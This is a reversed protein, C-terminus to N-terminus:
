LHSSEPKLAPLPHATIQGLGWLEATRPAWAQGSLLGAAPGGGGRLATSAQLKGAGSAQGVLRGWTQTGQGGEAPLQLGPQCSLIHGEGELWAHAWGGWSGPCGGEGKRHRLPAFHLSPAASPWYSCWGRPGRPLTTRRACTVAPRRRPLPLQWQLVGLHGHFVRAAEGGSSRGGSWVCGGGATWAPQGAAGRPSPAAPSDRCTGRVARFSTTPVPGGQRSQADLLGRGVAGIGHVGWFMQVRCGASAPPWTGVGRTSM